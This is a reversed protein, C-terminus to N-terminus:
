GGTQTTAGLRHRERRADALITLGGRLVVGVIIAGIVLDQWRTGLSYVLFGGCTVGVNAIVDNKSFIWSARMHVEGDRHKSILMLCVANAVLAVLSITVMYLPEPNSVWIVRRVIEGAMSLALVVQFVGSLFDACIKVSAAREVAYLGIGYVAADALMDLSGGTFGMSEGIVGTVFYAVFMTANITLLVILVRRQEESRATLECSCDATAIPAPKLVRFFSRGGIGPEVTSM